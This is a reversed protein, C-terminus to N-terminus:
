SGITLLSSLRRAKKSRIVTSPTQSPSLPSMSKHQKDFQIGPRLHIFSELADAVLEAPSGNVFHKASM